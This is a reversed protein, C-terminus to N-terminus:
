FRVAFGIGTLFDDAQENLGAGIRWDLQFNPTIQWTLGTNLTHACDAGRGAPYDGYYELYTGVDDRLAYALSISAGSQLFRGGDDTPVAFNVNGAVGLRDSLDYGWALKIEPDVDGSSFGGGGTPVTIAPIIAFDPRLGQQDFLKWKFGVYQDAGGQSWDELLVPRGARTEGPSKENAWSYGAWGVRVELDNWLGARLLLEPATHSRRRVGRERDLTFTYGGELQFRGRPVTSTSETFDPRDTEIPEALEAPPPWGWGDNVTPEPAGEPAAADPRAPRTAAGFAPAIAAERPADVPRTAAPGLAPDGAVAFAAAAFGYRLPTRPASHNLAATGSRSGRGTSQAGMFM